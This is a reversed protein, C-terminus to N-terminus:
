RVYILNERDVGRSTHKDKPVNVDMMLVPKSIITSSISRTFETIIIIESLRVCITLKGVGMGSQNEFDQQKPNREKKQHQYKNQLPKGEMPFNQDHQQRLKWQSEFQNVVLHGMENCLKHSNEHPKPHDKQDNSLHEM